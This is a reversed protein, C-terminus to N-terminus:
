EFTDDIEWKKSSGGVMNLAGYSMSYNNYSGPKPTLLYPFSELIYNIVEQPTKM